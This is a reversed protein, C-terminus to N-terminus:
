EHIVVKKGKEMPIIEMKPNEYERNLNHNNLEYVFIAFASLESHPQTGVSVNYDSIEYIYGPVKESGVTVCVGKKKGNEIEERLKPIVDKYDLGYMTLHILLYKEKIRKIFEKVNRIYKIEDFVKGWKYEIKKLNEEISDDKDGSYWVNKIGLIRATLFLHTTLRKDREKRHSLRLLALKVM